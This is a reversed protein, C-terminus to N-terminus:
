SGMLESKNKKISINVALLNEAAFVCAQKYM